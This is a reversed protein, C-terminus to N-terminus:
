WSQVERIKGKTNITSTPVVGGTLPLPRRLSISKLNQAPNDGLREAGALAPKPFCLTKILLPNQESGNESVAAGQYVTPVPVFGRGEQECFRVPAEVERYPFVPQMASTIM